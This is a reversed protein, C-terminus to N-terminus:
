FKYYFVWLMFKVKKVMELHLPSKEDQLVSVTHMLCCSNIGREGWGRAVM